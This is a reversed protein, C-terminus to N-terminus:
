EGAQATFEFLSCYGVMRDYAADSLRVYKRRKDTVDDSRVILGNETLLRIWRLATTAPADIRECLKSVTLRHYRADALALVLLIEWAPESFLAASFFSGRKRRLAILREVTAAVASRDAAAATPLLAPHPGRDALVPVITQEYGV